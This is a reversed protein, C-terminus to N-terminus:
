KGQNVQRHRPEPRVAQEEGFAFCRQSPIRPSGYLTARRRPVALATEFHIPEQENLSSIFIILNYVRM